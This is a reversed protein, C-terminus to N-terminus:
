RLEEAGGSLIFNLVLSDTITEVPARDDTFLVDSRNIEVLNATSDMLVQQLMAHADDPLNELNEFLNESSTELQTAVLITNFSGPVDIAHITPFVATMTNTMADVLRRDTNTRGVNIVVVGDDSLHAQVEQFFEVTTLHWPIYPPRYADIGIVTYDRELQNLMYRGDQAYATLSPMFEENM